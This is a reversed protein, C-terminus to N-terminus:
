ASYSLSLASAVPGAARHPTSSPPVFPLGHMGTCTASRVIPSTMVVASGVAPVPRVPPRRPSVSRAGRLVAPAVAHRIGLRVQRPRRQVHVDTEVEREGTHKGEGGQTKTASLGIAVLASHAESELKAELKHLEETVGMKAAGSAASEATALTLTPSTHTDSGRTSVDVVVQDPAPSVHISVSSEEEQADSSDDEEDEGKTESQDEEEEEEDEDDDAAATKSEETTTTAATTTEHPPSIFEDYHTCSCFTMKCYQRLGGSPWADPAYPWLFVLSLAYLFGVVVTVYVIPTPSPAVVGPFALLAQDPCGAIWTLSALPILLFGVGALRKAALLVATLSCCKVPTFPPTTKKEQGGAETPPAQDARKRTRMSQSELRHTFTFTIATALLFFGICTGTNYVVYPATCYGLSAGTASQLASWSVQTTQPGVTAGTTSISGNVTGNWVVSWQQLATYSLKRSFLTLDITLPETLVLTPPLISGDILTAALAPQQVFSVTQHIWPATTSLYAMGVFAVFVVFREVSLALQCARLGGCTM